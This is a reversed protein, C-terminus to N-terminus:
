HPFVGAKFDKNRLFHTRNNTEPSVNEDSETAMKLVQLDFIIDNWKPQEAFKAGLFIM